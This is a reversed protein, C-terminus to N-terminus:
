ASHIASASRRCSCPEEEMPTQLDVVSDLDDTLLLPTLSGATFLVALLCIAVTIM